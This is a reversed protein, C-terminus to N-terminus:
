AGPTVYVNSAALAAFALKNGPKLNIRYHVNPALYIDAGTTVATPDSGQRVFTAASCFVLAYPANIVASQTSATVSALLQSRGGEDAVISVERSEM